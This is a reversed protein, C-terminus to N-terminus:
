RPLTEYAYDIEYQLFYNMDDRADEKREKLGMLLEMLEEVTNFTPNVNPKDTIQQAKTAIMFCTMFEQTIDDKEENTFRIDEMKKITGHRRTAELYTNASQAM